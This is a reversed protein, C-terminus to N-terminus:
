VNDSDDERTVKGNKDEEADEDDNKTDSEIEADANNSTDSSSSVDGNEAEECDERSTQTQNQQEPDAMSSINLSSSNQKASLSNTNSNSKSSGDKSTKRATSKTDSKNVYGWLIDFAFIKFAVWKAQAGTLNKKNNTDTTSSKSRDVKPYSYSLLITSEILCSGTMLLFLFLVATWYYKQGDILATLFAYIIFLFGASEASILKLMRNAITSKRTTNKSVSINNSSSKTKINNSSGSASSITNRRGEKRYLERVARYLRAAVTIYYLGFGASLILYVISIEDVRWKSTISRVISITIEVATLLGSIIWFPIKLADLFSTTIATTRTITELWYSSILFVSSFTLALYSTTTMALVAPIVGNISVKWIGRTAFPDIASYLFKIASSIIVAVFIIAKIKNVEREIRIYVLLKHIGLGFNFTTWIGCFIQIFTMLSGTKLELWANYGTMDLLYTSNSVNLDEPLFTKVLANFSKYTVAVIPYDLALTDLGHFNPSGTAQWGPDESTTKNDTKRSPTNLIIGCIRPSIDGGVVPIGAHNEFYKTQANTINLLLRVITTADSPHILLIICGTLTDTNGGNISEALRLKNQNETNNYFINILKETVNYTSNIKEGFYVLPGITKISSMPYGSEKKKLIGRFFLPAVPKNTPVFSGNINSNEIYLEASVLNNYTCIVSLTFILPLM